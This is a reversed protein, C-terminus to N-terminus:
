WVYFIIISFSMKVNYMYISYNYQKVIFYYNHLSKESDNENKLM